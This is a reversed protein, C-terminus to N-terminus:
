RQIANTHMMNYRRIQKKTNKKNKNNTFLIFTSWFLNNLIWKKRKHAQNLQPPAYYCIELQTTPQFGICKQLTSHM